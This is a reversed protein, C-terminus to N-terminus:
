GESCISGYKTYNKTEEYIDIVNSASPMKAEVPAKPIMKQVEELFQYPDAGDTYIERWALSEEPSLFNGRLCEPIEQAMEM